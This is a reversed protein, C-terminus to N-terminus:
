RVFTKRRLFIIYDFIILIVSIAMYLFGEAFTRRMEDSYSIPFDIVNLVSLYILFALVSLGFIFFLIRWIRRGFGGLDGYVVFFMVFLLNYGTNSFINLMIRGAEDSYKLVMHLMWLLAIGAQFVLVFLLREASFQRLSIPLLAQLRERTESDETIGMTIMGVFFAVTTTGMAADINIKSWLLDLLLMIIGICYVVFIAVAHYKYDEKLLQIM